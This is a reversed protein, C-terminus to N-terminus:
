NKENWLYLILGIVGITIFADAFNFVPWFKFDIFDIVHGRFVRDILNGVVGTLLLVYFLYAKKPIHDYFRILVGIVILSIWIFLMNSDKFIGWIAGTNKVLTIAFIKLDISPVKLTIVIKTLQDLILLVLFILFNKKAVM